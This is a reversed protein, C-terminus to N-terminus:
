EVAKDISRTLERVTWPRPKRLKIMGDKDIFVLTFARPRLDQRIPTDAAPDTDVVIIVDREALLAGDAVLYEMQEVFDPVLDSDAFVVILRNKWLYEQRDFDAAPLIVLADTAAEDQAHAPLSVLLVVLVTLFKRLM